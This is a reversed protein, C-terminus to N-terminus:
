DRSSTTVHSVNHPRKKSWAEDMDKLACDFNQSERQPELVSTSSLTTKTTLLGFNSRSLWHAPLSWRLPSSAMSNPVHISDRIRIVTASKRKEQKETIAPFGWPVNFDLLPNHFDGHYMFDLLPNHITTWYANQVTTRDQGAKYMMLIRIPFPLFGPQSSRSSFTSRFPFFHQLLVFNFWLSNSKKKQQCLLHDSVFFSIVLNGHVYWIDSDSMSWTTTCFTRSVHERRSFECLIRHHRRARGSTRAVHTTQAGIWIKPRRTSPQRTPQTCASCFNNKKQPLHPSLFLRISHWSPVAVSYTM